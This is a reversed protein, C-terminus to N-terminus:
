SRVLRELKATLQANHDELDETRQRHAHLERHLAKNEMQVKEVWESLDESRKQDRAPRETLVHEACKSCVELESKLDDNHQLVLYLADKRRSQQFHDLSLSRKGFSPQELQTDFVGDLDTIDANVVTVSRGAVSDYSATRWTISTHLVSKATLLPGIRDSYQSVSRSTSTLPTAQPLNAM